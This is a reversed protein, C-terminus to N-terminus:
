SEQREIPNQQPFDEAGAKVSASEIPDDFAVLELAEDAYRFSHVSGNTIAETHHPGDDPGVEKLLSRIVGGHSVVIISRGQNQEALEILAPLVRDAVAERSERGTVPVGEPFRAHLEEGTLGEAEGYNREVIAELSEPEPLGLEAAIISATEAARALPSSVVGHWKRRALLKGTEWAQARGTDNLPIDTTGQIRRDLNWDTEGHRVLYLYTM